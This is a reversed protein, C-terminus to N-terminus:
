DLLISALISDIQDYRYYPIRFLSIANAICYSDKIEECEMRTEFKEQGGYIECPRFHQEGDYEICIQKEPLYFDFRLLGERRCGSFTKQRTYEIQNDDLFRRVAKEGQSENCRPCGRGRLANDPSIKWVNDCFSCRHDIPTRAGAYTETPAFDGEVIEALQTAYTDNSKTQAEHSRRQGCEWCGHGQIINTPWANWTSGCVTCVHEIPVDDGEYEQFVIIRGEHLCQIQDFYEQHTKTNRVGNEKMKCPRCGHNQLITSPATLWERQCGGCQHRIPAKDGKYEELVLVAEGHINRVQSMYEDHTKKYKGACRGCGNGMLHSSPTQEFVGHTACVIKIKVQAKVYVVQDYGYKGTGHIANARQVFEKDTLRKAM